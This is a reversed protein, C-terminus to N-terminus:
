GSVDHVYMYMCVHVSLRNMGMGEQVCMCECVAYVSM